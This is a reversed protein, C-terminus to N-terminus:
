EGLRVKKKLINKSYDNNFQDGHSIVRNEHKRSGTTVVRSTLSTEAKLRRQLSNTRRNKNSLKKESKEEYKLESEEIPDHKVENAENMIRNENVQILLSSISQGRSFLVISDEIFRNQCSLSDETKLPFQNNHSLGRQYPITISPHDSRIICSLFSRIDSISLTYTLVQHAYEFCRRIKGFQFSNRGVDLEPDAPNEIAILNARNM